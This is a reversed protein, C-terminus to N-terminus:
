IEEILRFLNLNDGYIVDIYFFTWKKMEYLTRVLSWLTLVHMFIAYTQIKFNEFSSEISPNWFDKAESTLNIENSCKSLNM